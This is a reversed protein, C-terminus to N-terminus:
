HYLVDDPLYLFFYRHAIAAADAYKFYGLGGLNILISTVLLIDSIRRGRFRDILHGHIYDSLTSFLLLMVYVPEGWAYFLLSGLFLIVNRM